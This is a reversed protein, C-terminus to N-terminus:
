DKNIFNPYKPPNVAQMELTVWNLLENLPFRGEDIRSKVLKKMADFADQDVPDGYKAFLEDLIEWDSKPQYIRSIALATIFGVPISLLFGGNLSLFLDILTLTIISVGFWTVFFLTRKKMITNKYGRFNILRLCKGIENLTKIKEENIM